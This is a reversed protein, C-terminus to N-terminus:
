VSACFHLCHKMDFLYLYLCKEVGGGTPMLIFADHGLMVANIAEAQKLRFSKLGFTRQFEMKMVQSHQYQGRFELEDDETPVTQPSDCTGPVATSGIRSTSTVFPPAFATADRVPPQFQKFVKPQTQQLNPSNTESGSSYVTRSTFNQLITATPIDSPTRLTARPTPLQRFNAPAQTSTQIPSFTSTPALPALHNPQEEFDEFRGESDLLFALSDMSEEFHIQPKSDTRPLHSTM